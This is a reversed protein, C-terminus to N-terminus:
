ENLEGVGFYSAGPHHFVIASVSAEPEMMFGETLEVGIDQPKLLEFLKTQDDLQPCAPYGPSYRRGRYKAQFREMMTMTPGDAHGWMNRIQGHIYEAAAEATELALAQLVHSKLYDGKNKLEEAFTRVNEGATVVFMCINDPKPSGLPNVYDALCLGNVKAQRPFDFVALPIPKQRREAPATHMLAADEPSFLYMHNGDSGSEFFQYVARPRLIRDRTLNKIDEVISCIEFARKADPNDKAALEMARLNGEEAFKLVTGKLGLHKGYLM